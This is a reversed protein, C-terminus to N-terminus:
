QGGFLFEVGATLKMLRKTESPYGDLVTTARNTGLAVTAEHWSGDNYTHEFADLVVPQKMGGTVIAVKFRGEQLYVQRPSPSTLPSVSSTRRLSPSLFNM